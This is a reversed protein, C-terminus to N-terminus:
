TKELMTLSRAAFGRARAIVLARITQPTRSLRAALDEIATNRAASYPATRDLIRDLQTALREAAVFRRADDENRKPM